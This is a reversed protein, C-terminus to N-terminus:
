CRIKLFLNSCKKPVLDSLSYINNEYNFKCECVHFHTETCRKLIKIYVPVIPLYKPLYKRLALFPYALKHKAISGFKEGTKAEILFLTEVGNRKAFFLADIEVQGNNHTWVQNIHPHPKLTFTFTSQGTAPIIQRNQDDLNLAQALLGSALAFNVYSSETLVPFLQFAYLDRVSCTPIYIEPNVKSFLEEDILFFDNWNNVVRSLAFQTYKGDGSVGLRFVMVKALKLEIPLKEYSDVSIVEATKKKPLKYKDIYGQFSTPEFTEFREKLMHNLAPEFYKCKTVTANTM